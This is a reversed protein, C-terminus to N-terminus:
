FPLVKCSCREATIRVTMVQECLIVAMQNDGQNSSKEHRAYLIRFAPFWAVCALVHMNYAFRNFGACFHM